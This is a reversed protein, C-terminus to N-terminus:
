GTRQWIHPTGLKANAFYKYSYSFSPDSTYTQFFSDSYNDTVDTWKMRPWIEGPPQRDSFQVYVFGIPIHSQKIRKLLKRLNALTLTPERECVVVNKKECPQTVWAGDQHMQVCQSSTNNDVSSQHGNMWKTYILEAGDQAWYYRKKGDASSNGLRVGLWVHDVLKSRNFLFSVVSEQKHSDQITLLNAGKELCAREADTYSQLGLFDFV